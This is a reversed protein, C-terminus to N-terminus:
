ETAIIYNRIEEIKEYATKFGENDFIMEPQLKALEDSSLVEAEFISQIEKLEKLLYPNESKKHKEVISVAEPVLNMYNGTTIILDRLALMKAEDPLEVPYNFINSMLHHLKEIYNGVLLAAFVQAQDKETLLVESKALGTRVSNLISDKPHEGDDYRDLILGELMDGIGLGIALQKAAATSLYGEYKKDFAIQYIGDALYVGINAGAAVPDNKYYEWNMPDNVLEPMFTTGSLFLYDAVEGPKRLNGTMAEIEKTLTEIESETVADSSKQGSNKCATFLIALVVLFALNKM